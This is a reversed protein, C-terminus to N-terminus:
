AHAFRETSPSDDRAGSAPYIYATLRGFRAFSATEVGCGTLALRSGNTEPRELVSWAPTMAPVHRDIRRRLAALQVDGPYAYAEVGNRGSASSVDIGVGFAGLRGEHHGVFAAYWRLLSLAHGTRLGLSPALRTVTRLDIYPDTLLYLKCRLSGDSSPGLCAIDIASKQLSDAAALVSEMRRPSLITPDLRALADRNLAANKGVIHLRARPPEGRVHGVSWYVGALHGSAPETLARVSRELVDVTPSNGLVTSAAHGVRDLIDSIADAACLDITYKFGVAIGRDFVLGYEVPHGNRTLGSKRWQGYVDRPAVALLEHFLAQIRDHEAELGSVAVLRSIWPNTV